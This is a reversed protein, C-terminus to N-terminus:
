RGGLAGGHGFRGEAGAGGQNVCQMEGGRRGVQARIGVEEGGGEGADVVDRGGVVKYRQMVGITAVWAREGDCGLESGLVSGGWGGVVGDCM